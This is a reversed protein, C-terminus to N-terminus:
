SLAVVTLAFASGPFIFMSLFVAIFPRRLRRALWRAWYYHVVLLFAILLVIGLVALVLNAGSSDM